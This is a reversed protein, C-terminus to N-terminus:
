LTEDFGFPILYSSNKTFIMKLLSNYLKKIEGM